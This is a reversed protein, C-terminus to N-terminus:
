GLQERLLALADSAELTRALRDPMAERHMVGADMQRLGRRLDEVTVRNRRELAAYGRALYLAVSLSLMLLEVGSSFPLGFAAAGFFTFSELTASMWRAILSQVEEDLDRSVTEIEKAPVSGGRLAVSNKGLLSGLAGMSRLFSGGSSYGPATSALLTRFLARSLRDPSPPESLVQGILEQRREIALELSFTDGKILGDQVLAVTAVARLIKEVASAPVRLCDLMASVLSECDSFSITHERDFPVREGVSVSHSSAVREFLAVIEASQESLTTGEVEVAPCSFSAGVRVGTPTSVFTYPFIQCSGPKEAEGYAAHVQCREDPLLAPCARDATALSFLTGGKGELRKLKLRDAPVFASM